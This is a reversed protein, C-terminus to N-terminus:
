FQEVNVAPAPPAPASETDRREAACFRRRRSLLLAAAGVVTVPVVQIAHYFFAFAVAPGKAIGAFLLVAVTAGEFPGTSAPTSPLALALNIGFLVVVSLPFSLALGMSRACVLIMAAECLWALLSLLAARAPVGPESLARCGRESRLLFQRLKGRWGGRLTGRAVGVRAARGATAWLLILLAVTGAFVLPAAVTAWGQDSTLCSAAFALLALVAIELLNEVLTVALAASKTVGATSELMWLRAVHGGRFPTVNNLASSTLLTTFASRFSLRRALLVRLRLARLGMMCANMAVVVSPVLVGARRVAISIDHWKVGRALFFLAAALVLGRLVM